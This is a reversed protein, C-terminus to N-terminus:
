KVIGDNFRGLYLCGMSRDDDYAFMLDLKGSQSQDYNESILEVSKWDAPQSIGM